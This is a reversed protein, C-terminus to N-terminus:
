LTSIRYIKLHLGLTRRGNYILYFIAVLLYLKYFLRSVVVQGELELRAKARLKETKPVRLFWLKINKGPVAIAFMVTSWDM